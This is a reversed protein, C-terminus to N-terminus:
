SSLTSDCFRYDLIVSLFGFQLEPGFDRIEVANMDFVGNSSPELSDTTYGKEGTLLFNGESSM